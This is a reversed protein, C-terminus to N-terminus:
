AYAHLTGCSVQCRLTKDHCCNGILTAAKCSVVPDQSALMKAIAAVAPQGDPTVAASVAQLVAPLSACNGLLSLAM